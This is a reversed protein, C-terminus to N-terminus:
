QQESMSKDREAQMKAMMEATLKSNRPEEEEDIDGVSEWIDDTLANSSSPSSENTQKSPPITIAPPNAFTVAKRGSTEKPPVTPITSILLELIFNYADFGQKIIEDEASYLTPTGNLWHPRERAPILSADEVGFSVINEDKFKSILNICLLSGIDNREPNKKCKNIYLICRM